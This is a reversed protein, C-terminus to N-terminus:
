ISLYATNQGFVKDFEFVASVDPMLDHVTEFESEERLSKELLKGKVPNKLYILKQNNENDPAYFSYMFDQVLSSQKSGTMSQNMSKSTTSPRGRKEGEKSPTNSSYLEHQLPPRLRAYVKLNTNTTM